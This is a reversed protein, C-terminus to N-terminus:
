PASEARCATAAPVDGIFYGYENPNGACTLRRCCHAAQSEKKRAGCKSKGVGAKGPKADWWDVGKEKTEAAAAAPLATMMAGGVGIKMFDRRGLVSDPVPADSNKM